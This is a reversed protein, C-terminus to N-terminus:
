IMDGRDSVLPKPSLMASYTNAEDGCPFSGCWLLAAKTLLEYTSCQVSTHHIDRPFKMRPGEWTQYGNWNPGENVEVYLTHFTTYNKILSYRVANGYLSPSLM